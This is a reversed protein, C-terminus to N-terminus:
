KAVFSKRLTFKLSLLLFISFLFIPMKFVNHFVLFMSLISFFSILVTKVVGNFTLALYFFLFTYYSFYFFIGVLWGGNYVAALSTSVNLHPVILKVELHNIEFASILRKSITQPLIESLFVNPLKFLSYAGSSNEINYVFNSIPSTIYLWVWYFSVPYGKDKYRESAFGAELIYNRAQSYDMDAIMAMRIIGLEGFLVLVSVSFFFFFLFQKTKFGPKCVYSFVFSIAMFLLLFRNLILMALIFFIILYNRGFKSKKHVFAWSHYIVAVHLASVALVHIIPAGFDSYAIQGLLPVGYIALEFLILVIGLIGIRDFRVKQLRSEVGFGISYLKLHDWFFAAVANLAVFFIIPLINEPTLNPYITSWGLLYLASSLLFVAAIIIFPNAAVRKM